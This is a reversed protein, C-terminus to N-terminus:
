MAYRCKGHSTRSLKFNLSEFHEGAANHTHTHTYFERWTASLQNVALQDVWCVFNM